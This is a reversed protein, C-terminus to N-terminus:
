PIDILAMLLWKEGGYICVETGSYDGVKITGNVPIDGYGKEEKSIRKSIRFFALPVRILKRLMKRDFGYRGLVSKLAAKILYGKTINLRNLGSMSKTVIIFGVIENEGRAVIVGDRECQFFFNVKDRYFRYLPSRDGRQKVKAMSPEIHMNAIVPIDEERAASYHM